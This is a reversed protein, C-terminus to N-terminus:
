PFKLIFCFKFIDASIHYSMSPYKSIHGHWNYLKRPNKKVVIFWLQLYIYPRWFFYFFTVFYFICHTIKLLCDGHYVNVSPCFSICNVLSLMKRKNSKEYFMQRRTYQQEICIRRMKNTLISKHWTYKWINKYLDICIM